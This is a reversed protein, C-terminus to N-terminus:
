VSFLRVIGALIEQDPQSDPLEIRETLVFNLRRRLERFMVGTQAAIETISISSTNSALIAKPHAIKDLEEKTVAM